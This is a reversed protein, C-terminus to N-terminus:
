GDELITFDSAKLDRVPRGSRDRAVVNVLVLESESKFTFLKQGQASISSQEAQQPTQAGFTPLVLSFALGIAAIRRLGSIPREDSKM